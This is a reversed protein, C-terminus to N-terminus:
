RSPPTDVSLEFPNEPLRGVRNKKQSILFKRKLGLATQLQEAAPQGDIELLHHQSGTQVAAAVDKRAIPHTKVRLATSCNGVVTCPQSRRWGRSCM